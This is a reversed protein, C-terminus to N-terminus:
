TAVLARQSVHSLESLSSSAHAGSFRQVSTYLREWGTWSVTRLGQFAPRRRPPSVPEILGFKHRSLKPLSLMAEDWTRTTRYATSTVLSTGGELAQPPHRPRGPLTEVDKASFNANRRRLCGLTGGFGDCSGVRERPARDSSRM